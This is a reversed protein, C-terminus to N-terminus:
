FRNSRRAEGVGLGVTALPLFVTVEVGLTVAVWGVEVKGVVGVFVGGAITVVGVRVGVGQSRGSRLAVKDNM